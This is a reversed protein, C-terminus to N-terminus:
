VIKGEFPPLYNPAEFELVWLDPDFQLQKEIYSDAKAEEVPAPGTARLWTREGEQGQFPSLVMDGNRGHLKILVGGADEDGRRVVVGPQNAQMGLRLSAAVWLGTKLRPTTSM